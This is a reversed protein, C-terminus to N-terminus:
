KWIMSSKRFKKLVDKNQLGMLPHERFCLYVCINKRVSSFILSLLVCWVLLYLGSSLWTFCLLQQKKIFGSTPLFNELLSTDLNSETVCVYKGCNYLDCCYCTNSKVRLNCSVRSATQCHVQLVSTNELDSGVISTCLGWESAQLNTFASREPQRSVDLDFATGSSYYECRGAYVPRLDKSVVIDTHWSLAKV